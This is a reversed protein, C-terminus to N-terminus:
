CKYQIGSACLFHSLIDALLDGSQMTAFLQREGRGGHSGSGDSSPRTAAGACGCLFHLVRVVAARFHPRVTRSTGLGRRCRLLTALLLLLLRGVLLQEREFLYSLRRTSKASHRHTHQLRNQVANHENHSFCKRKEHVSTHMHIHAVHRIM